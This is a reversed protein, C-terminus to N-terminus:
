KRAQRETQIHTQRDTHRDTQTYRKVRFVWEATAAGRARFIEIPKIWVPRLLM